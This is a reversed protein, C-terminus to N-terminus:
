GVRHTEVPRSIFAMEESIDKDTGRRSTPMILHGDFTARIEKENTSMALLDGKHVKEYSKFEKIFDFSLDPFVISDDIHYEDYEMAVSQKTSPLMSLNELLSVACTAAREFSSPDTHQGVEIAFIKADSEPSSYFSFAPAGIQIRDINSILTKIPFGRVLEPHFEGGRSIIMPESLELTSHIDIGFEFHKWVPYLERARVIEYRTDSTLHLTERPLRNMNIDCFRSKRIEENSTANFFKETACINNIVLYLTGCMLEKEINKERLLYEFAALGSPENGHTCATIGLIPGLKGSEIRMVGSIDECQMEKFRKFLSVLAYPVGTVM